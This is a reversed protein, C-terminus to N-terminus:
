FANWTPHETDETSAHANGETAMKHPGSGLFNNKNNVNGTKQGKWKGKQTKMEDATFNLLVDMDSPAFHIELLMNWWTRVDDIWQWLTYPGTTMTM